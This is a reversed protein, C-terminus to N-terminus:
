WYCTKITIGHEPHSWNTLFLCFCVIVWDDLEWPFALYPHPHYGSRDNNKILCHNDSIYWPKSWVIDLPPRLWLFSSVTWRWRPKQVPPLVLPRAPACHCSSTNLILKSTQCFIDFSILNKSFCLCFLIQTPLFAPFVSNILTMVAGRFLRLNLSPWQSRWVKSIGGFLLGIQVIFVLFFLTQFKEIM